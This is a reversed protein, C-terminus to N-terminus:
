IVNRARRIQRVYAKVDDIPHDFFEVDLGDALGSKRLHRTVDNFAVTGNWGTERLMRLAQVFEEHHSSNVQTCRQVFLIDIDRVPAQETDDLQLDSARFSMPWVRIDPILGGFKHKEAHETIIKRQAEAQCVILDASRWHPYFGPAM